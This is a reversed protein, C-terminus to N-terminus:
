TLIGIYNALTSAAVTRLVLHPQRPVPRNLETIPTKVRM